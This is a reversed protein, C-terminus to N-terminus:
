SPPQDRRLGEATFVAAFGLGWAWWQVIYPYLMLGVSATSSGSLDANAAWIIFWAGMSISALFGIAAAVRSQRTNVLFYMAIQPASVIALAFPAAILFTIWGAVIQDGESYRTPFGIHPLV